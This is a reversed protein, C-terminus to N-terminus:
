RSPPLVLRFGIDLARDDPYGSSRWTARAQPTGYQWSGGRRVRTSGTAPGAPDQQRRPAYPAKLDEVWEWVNGSMDYLGLSNAQKTGVPHTKGGSNLEHWGLVDLQEGGCYRQEKGGSRCAYEWEAETPLRYSAGSLQNLRRIFDRADTSSVQEVPCDDGCSKFYSPNDGMVRRWQGQTVEHRGMFFNTLCVEHVPREDWQGDAAGMQFCGGAVPVFIIGTVADLVAGPREAAPLLPTATAVVSCTLLLCCISLVFRGSM